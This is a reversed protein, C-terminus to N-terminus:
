HGIPYKPLVTLTKIDSFTLAHCFFQCAPCFRNKGGLRSGHQDDITVDMRCKIGITRRSLVAITNAHTTVIRAADFKYYAVRSTSPPRVARSALYQAHTETDVHIGVVGKLLNTLLEVNGTLPNALDFGLRQALQAVRRSALM